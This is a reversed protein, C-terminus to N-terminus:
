GLTGLRQFLQKKLDGSGCLADMSHTVVVSVAQEAFLKQQYVNTPVGPKQLCKKAADTGFCVMMEVFNLQDHTLKESQIPQCIFMGLMFMVDDVFQQGAALGLSDPCDFVALARFLFDSKSKSYALVCSGTSLVTADSWYPVGMSTLMIRQYKSLTAGMSNM